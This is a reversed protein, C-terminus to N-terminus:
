AGEGAQRRRELIRPLSIDYYEEEAGPRDGSEATIAAVSSESGGPGAGRHAPSAGPLRVRASLSSAVALLLQIM